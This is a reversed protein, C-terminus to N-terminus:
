CFRCPAAGGIREFSASCWCLDTECLSGRSYGGLGAFPTFVFDGYKLDSYALVYGFVGGDTNAM